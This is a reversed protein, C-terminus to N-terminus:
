LQNHLIFKKDDIKPKIIMDDEDEDKESTQIDELEKEEINLKNGDFNIRIRSDIDNMKNNKIIPKQEPININKKNSNSSLSLKDDNTNDM